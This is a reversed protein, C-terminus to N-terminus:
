IAEASTQPIWGQNGDATKIKKWGSLLELIQVKAGEHLVFLDVSTNDPAAKVAVIGSMIIAESHAEYRNKESISIYLSALSIVFAIIATFFTIKRRASARGFFSFLLLLLGAAFCCVSVWAWGGITLTSKVLRLGAVLFFEPLPEIKDVTQSNALELNYAVDEDDPNLRLAREYFLIAKALEGQKYYANGTNFLLASSQKGSGIIATYAEAAEAYKGDAYLNNASTWLSDAQAAGLLPLGALCLSLIIKQKYHM